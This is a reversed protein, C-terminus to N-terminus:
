PKIEVRTGVPVLRWIEEIEPNTVAICGTTWDAMHQLNGVWAYSKPLGHIDVDGGPNVGLKRARAWDTANPYSLHLALHFQSHANKRDVFYEGEPVKMDGAQEKPGVPDRSLAVHYTKLVTGNSYLTMTHTSKVIVILDATKAPTKGAAWLGPCMLLLLWVAAARMAAMMVVAAPM